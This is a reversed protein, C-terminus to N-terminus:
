DVSDEECRRREEIRLATAVPYVAKTEPHRWLEAKNERMTEPITDQTWGSEKLDTTTM